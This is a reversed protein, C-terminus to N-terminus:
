EAKWSTNKHAYHDVYDVFSASTSIHPWYQLLFGPYADFVQYFGGHCGYVDWMGMSPAQVWAAATSPLYEGIHALRVAWHANEFLTNM